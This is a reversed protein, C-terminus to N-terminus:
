VLEIWWLWSSLLYFAHVFTTVKRLVAEYKVQKFKMKDEDEQIRHLLASYADQIAKFEVPDGGKDPHKQQSLRIFAHEVDASSPRNAERLGLLEYCAPYNPPLFLNEGRSAESLAKIWM